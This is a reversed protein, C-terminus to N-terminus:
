RAACDALVPKAVRLVAHADPTSLVVKRFRRSRDPPLHMRLERWSGNVAGVRNAAKGDVVVEVATGGTLDAREPRLLVRLACTSAPIYFAGRGTMTHFRVGDSQEQWVSFGISVNELNAEHDLYQRARLPVSVALAAVVVAVLARTWRRPTGANETVDPRRAAAMGAVLAALLWFGVAVERILLPHGVLCTMLFALVGAAAGALGLDAAPWARWVARGVAALLWLFLALGSIGLEALVQLFNNHANERADAVTGQGRDAVIRQRFAPDIYDTSMIFFRGVGVGFVPYARAMRLAAKAMALRADLAFPSRGPSIRPYVWAGALVVAVLVAAGAWVAAKHRRAWKRARQVLTPRRARIPEDKLFRELDDALEQATAYRETSNKEMAKLVITELEAPIAKNLRRPSPPEEFAIQRLLEQRDQGGFAPELTLLEYLTVGLSYIDTRHDVAVRKALAQEPSMYRLTGVLDGSMTLGAQSQCHALGFDTIWLNGRSDILLNAPKIDRHVVGLQHAHELAEAAQIGLQAAKHFFDRGWWGEGTQPTADGAAQITAIAAAPQAPSPQYDTTPGGGAVPGTKEAQRLQRIIESLPRGDIFQMGYFHVGRECGVFYVPM